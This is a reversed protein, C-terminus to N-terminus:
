KAKKPVPLRILGMDSPHRIVHEIAGNLMHNAVVTPLSRREKKWESLRHPSYNTGLQQNLTQLAECQNLGNVEHQFKAWATVINKDM